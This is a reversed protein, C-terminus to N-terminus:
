DRPPDIFFAADVAPDAGPPMEERDAAAVTGPSAPTAHRAFVGQAEPPLEAIDRTMQAIARLREGSYRFARSLAEWVRPAVRGPELLGAELEHYRARVADEHGGLDLESALRAALERRSLEANARLEALSPELVREVMEQFRPDARLRELEALELSRPPAEALYRDILAALEDREIGSVERLYPIPDVEDGRRHAEVYRTFLLDVRTM